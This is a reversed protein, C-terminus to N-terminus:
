ALTRALKLHNNGNRTPANRAKLGVCAFASSIVTAPVVAPEKKPLPSKEDVPSVKAPFANLWVVEPPKAEITRPASLRPEM